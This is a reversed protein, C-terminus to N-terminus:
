ILGAPSGGTGLRAPSGGTGLRPPREVVNRETELGFTGERPQRCPCNGRYGGGYGLPSSAPQYRENQFRKTSDWKATGAKKLVIRCSRFDGGAKLGRRQAFRPACWRGKASSASFSFLSYHHDPKAWQLASCNKPNRFSGAAVSCGEAESHEAVEGQWPLRRFHIM